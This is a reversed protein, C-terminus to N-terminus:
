PQTIADIRDLRVVIRSYQQSRLEVWQGAEVKVVIGAIVQGDVYLNVGRKDQQSATLMQEFTRNVDEASVSGCMLVLLMAALGGRAGGFLIKM